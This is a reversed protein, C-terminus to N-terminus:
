FNLHLALQWRRVKQIRNNDKRTVLTKNEKMGILEKCGLPFLVKSPTLNFLIKDTLVNTCEKLSLYIELKDWVVSTAENTSQIGINLSVM